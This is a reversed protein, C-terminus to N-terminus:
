NKKKSQVIAKYVAPTLTFEMYLDPHEDAFKGSNFVRRSSSERKWTCIGEIGASVDVQIKLEATALDLDWEAFAKIRVLDLKPENLLYANKADNVRDVIAGIATIEDKFEKELDEFEAAKVLMKFSEKWTPVAEYYEEALEKHAKVFETVSFKPEKQVERKEAAGQLNEGLEIAEKFKASIIAEIGECAKIKALAVSIQKALDQAKPTAKLTETTSPKKELKEAQSFIPEVRTMDAALERAKEIASLVLHEDDFKFWEGGIRYPAFLRHMQGEVERVALTSIVEQNFLRRPNGTQHELLRKSSSRAEAVLGIKVFPSLDDTGLITERVFYIEGPKRAM